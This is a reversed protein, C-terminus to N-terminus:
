NNVTLPLSYHSTSCYCKSLHGPYIRYWTISLSSIGSLKAPFNVFILFIVTQQLAAPSNQCNSPQVTHGYLIAGGDHYLCVPTCAYCIFETFGYFLLDIEDIIEM